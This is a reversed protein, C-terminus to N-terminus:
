KGNYCAEYFLQINFLPNDQRLANAIHEIVTSVSRKHAPKGLITYAKHLAAALVKYDKTTM